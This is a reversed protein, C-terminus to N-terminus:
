GEGTAWSLDSAVFASPSKLTPFPSDVNGLADSEGKFAVIPAVELRYDGPPLGAIRFEGLRAGEASTVSSVAEKRPDNVNRAVVIAGSVPNGTSRLTLKGEIVGTEEGPVASPYLSAITAEDDLTPLSNHGGHMGRRMLPRDECGYDDLPPVLQGCDVNAEMHSLGLAHGMEHHVTVPLSALDLAAGNLFVVALRLDPSAERNITWTIGFVERSLGQQLSELINGTADPVIVIGERVPTNDNMDDPNKFVAAPFSDPTLPGPLAGEFELGLRSRPVGGWISVAKEVEAQIQDHTVNTLDGDFLWVPVPNPAKWGVGQGSSDYFLADGARSDSVFGFLFTLLSLFSAAFRLSVKNFIMEKGLRM